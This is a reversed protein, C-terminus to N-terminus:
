HDVLSSFILINLNLLLLHANDLPTSVGEITLFRRIRLGFNDIRNPNQINKFLTRKLTRQIAVIATFIYSRIDFALKFDFM